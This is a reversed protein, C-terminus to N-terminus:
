AGSFHLREKQLIGITKLKEYHFFSHKEARIPFSSIKETLSKGQFEFDRIMADGGGSM